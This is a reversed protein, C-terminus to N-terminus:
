EEVVMDCIRGILYLKYLSLYLIQHSQQSETPNKHHWHQNPVVLMSVRMNCNEYIELCCPVVSNQTHTYCV